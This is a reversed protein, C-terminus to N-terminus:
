DNSDGETIRYLTVDEGSDTFARFVVALRGANFLERMGLRENIPHRGEMPIQLYYRIEMERLADARVDPSSVGYFKQIEWDDLHVLQISPDFLLHRNDHTLLKSDRLNQNIFQIAEFEGPFKLEYFTDPDILPHRLAWM